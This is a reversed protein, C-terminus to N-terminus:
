AVGVRRLDYPKGTPRQDYSHKFVLHRHVLRLQLVDAGHEQWRHLRHVRTEDENNPPLVDYSVGHLDEPFGLVDVVLFWKLYLINLDINISPFSLLSSEPQMLTLHRFFGYFANLLCVM